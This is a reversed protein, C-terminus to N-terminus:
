KGLSFFDGVDVVFVETPIMTVVSFRIPEKLIAAYEGFCDGNTLEDLELLRSEVARQEYDEKTPQKILFDPDNADEKNQPIKFDVKRLIKIRGSKVFFLFTPSDEQRLILTNTPFKRYQSKSALEELRKRDLM